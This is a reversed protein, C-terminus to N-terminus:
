YCFSNSAPKWWRTNHKQLAAPALWSAAPFAGPARPTQPPRGRNHRRCLGRAPRWAPARQGLSDPFWCPSLSVFYTVPLMYKLLKHNLFVPAKYKFTSKWKKDIPPSRKPTHSEAASSDADRSSQETSRNGAPGRVSFVWWKQRTWARPAYEACFKLVEPCVPSKWFFFFMCVLVLYKRLTDHHEPHKKAVAIRSVCLMTSDCEWTALYRREPNALWWALKDVFLWQCIRGFTGKILWLYCM